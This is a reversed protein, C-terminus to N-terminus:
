RDRRKISKSLAFTVQISEVIFYQFNWKVGPTASYHNCLILHWKLATSRENSNVKGLTPWKVSWSKLFLKAPIVYTVDEGMYHSSMNNKSQSDTQWDTELLDHKCGVMQVVQLIIFYIAVFTSWESDIHLTCTVVVKTWPWPQM